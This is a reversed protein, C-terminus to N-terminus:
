GAQLETPRSIWTHLQAWQPLYRGWTFPMEKVSYSEWVRGATVPKRIHKGTLWVVIPQQIVGDGAVAAHWPQACTEAELSHAPPAPHPAPRLLLRLLSLLALSGRGFVCGAITTRCPPACRPSRLPAPLLGGHGHLARAAAAPTGQQGCRWYIERAHMSHPAAM